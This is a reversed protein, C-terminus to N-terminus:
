PSSSHDPKVRPENKQVLLTSCAIERVLTRIRFNSEIFLNQLRVVEQHDLYDLRRGLLYTLLHRTLSEAFEERYNERLHKQLANEGDVTQGDPLEIPGPTVDSQQNSSSAMRRTERWKGIADFHELAIGWPDIKAHCSQCAGPARHKEIQELVSLGQLDPAQPNLEPVNPPPPPPPMHLLRDLMWVGRRVPHSDTGNSNMTLTSSQTLLGGRASEAPFTVRQFRSSSPVPLGYHEALLDNIVGYNSDLLDLASADTEFIEVFYSLTERISADAFERDYTPYIERQVAVNRHRDLRLWQFCFDKLFRRSRIDTLMRDVQSRLESEQLLAEEHAMELLGDDPAQMWLAYSIRSAIEYSRKQRLGLEQDDQWKPVQYLFAPSILVATLTEQLSEQPSMGQERFGQFLGLKSTVEQESAPRRFAQSMFDRLQKRLTPVASNAPTAETSESHASLQ